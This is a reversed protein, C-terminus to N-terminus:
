KRVQEIQSTFLTKNEKERRLQEQLETIKKQYARNEEGVTELQEKLFNVHFLRPYVILNSPLHKLGATKVKVDEIDLLELKPLKELLEELNGYFDNNQISLTKLKVFSSFCTIDTPPFDNDGIRLYKLKEPQLQSLFNLSNFKNSYVYLTDIECNEPLELSTLQNKQAYLTTLDSFKVLSLSGKLNKEAIDIKKIGKRKKKPYNENLWKQANIVHSSAHEKNEINRKPEEASNKSVAKKLEEIEELATNKNNTEEILTATLENFKKEWDECDGKLNKILSGSIELKRSLEEVEKRGGFGKSKKWEQFDYYCNKLEEVIESLGLDDDNERDDAVFLKKLNNPLYKFGRNVMTNGICLEELKKLDKLHVLSGCFNNYQKCYINSYETTGLYFKELNTFKIFLKLDGLSFCNNRLNLYILKNPCKIDIIFKINSLNNCSCDFYELNASNSISLNDLKNISCNLWELNTFDALDLSGELGKNSVDLKVVNKRKELPYFFNVWEQADRKEKFKSAFEQSDYNGVKLQSVLEFDKIKLGIQLWKQADRVTLGLDEWIQRYTKNEGIERAFNPDIETWGQCINLM